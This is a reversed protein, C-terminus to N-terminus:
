RNRGFKEHSSVWDTSSIASALSIEGACVVAAVIEAFKNVQGAGYCGMMELCERQTALNTGGGYTAVILSPLTMSAYLDNEPTLEAHIIGTSSEAVNAVDQGTAIFLAALANATHLGNNNAGSLNAGLNGLQSHYFLQEPTVRLKEMLVEKKITCEAVVRKGRTLLTNIYSAKKDTAMNSELYFHRISDEPYHEHIWHCAFLTAKSVMNQGAADGTTYNFRLFSFKHSLIIEIDLLKAFQSTSQAERRIEELHKMVWIKFDRAGRADDFVFVPARQMRDELITCKVGGSLNLVQMGRNYSAVLTGESTALPILYEGQAHEGQVLLPGAIGVPVQAVGIFHECNGQVRDPDFSYQFLHKPQSQSFHQIFEQRAKVASAGYDDLDDRPIKPGLATGNEQLSDAVQIELTGFTNTKISVSIEHKGAPLPSSQPVSITVSHKLPFPFPNGKNIEQHPIVNNQHDQVIIKELDIKQQNIRITELGTLNVTSLRNKLSFSFGQETNHLSGFTYLKQLM